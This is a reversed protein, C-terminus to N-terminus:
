VIQIGTGQTFAYLGQPVAGIKFTVESNLQYSGKALTGAPVNLLTESGAPTTANYKLEGAKTDKSVSGLTGESPGGLQDYYYTITYKLPSAVLGAAMGGAFEFEMAIQFDKTADVIRSTPTGAELVQLADASKISPDNPPAPQGDPM